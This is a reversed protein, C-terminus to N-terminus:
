LNPASGLARTVFNLLLIISKFIVRVPKAHNMYYHNSLKSIPKKLLDHLYFELKLKGIITVSGDSYPNNDGKVTNTNILRHIVLERSLNERFCVLDGIEVNKAPMVLVVDGEKLLPWMSTGSIPVKFEKMTRSIGM